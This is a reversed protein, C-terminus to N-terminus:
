SGLRLKALQQSVFLQVGNSTLFLCQGCGCTRKNIQKERKDTALRVWGWGRGWTCYLGGFIAAKHLDYTREQEARNLLAEGTWHVTGTIMNTSDTKLVYM